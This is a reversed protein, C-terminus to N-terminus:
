CIILIETSNDVPTVSVNDYFILTFVLFVGLTFRSTFM